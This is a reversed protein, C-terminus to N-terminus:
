TPPTAPASRKQLPNAIVQVVMAFGVGIFTFLVRRGEEALDHPHTLDSSMLVWVAIAATYLAYNVGKISTAIACSLIIAVQLLQQNDITFLLIVATVAGIITGVVRQEAILASDDLSRKMAVITAIPIWNANPLHLAFPIVAAIGVTAARIAGFLVLPRTLKVSANDVPIEPFPAVGARRHRVLWGLFAMAIYYTSGILWALAQAWASSAVHSADFSAPLGLAVLFWINVLLAAIATHVGFQLALGCLFTVVFVTVLVLGWADDGLAYGLATLVTGAAAVGVIPRLRDSWEGGPDSQAVFLVGFIFSLHYTKEDLAILVVSPLGLVVLAAFGRSVNLGESNLTFVKAVRSTLRGSHGVRIM